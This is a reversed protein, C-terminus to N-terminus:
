SGLRAIAKQAPEIRGALAHSAATIRMAYHADPAGQLAMTAWLSVEDYGGRFFNAHAMGSQRQSVWTDLPSLRLARM